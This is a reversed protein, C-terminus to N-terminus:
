QLVLVIYVYMERKDVTIIVMFFLFFCIQVTPMISNKTVCDLQKHKDTVM